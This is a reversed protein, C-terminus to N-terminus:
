QKGKLKVPLEVKVVGGEAITVEIPSNTTCYPPPVSEVADPFDAQKADSPLITGDKDMFRSVIVKYKGPPIGEDSQRSSIVTFKGDQDSVGIAGQGITGEAPLFQISANPVPKGVALIEGQIPVREIGDGCGVIGIMTVVLYCWKRMMFRGFICGYEIFFFVPDYARGTNKERPLLLKRGRDSRSLTGM